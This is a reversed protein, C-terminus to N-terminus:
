EWFLDWKCRGAMVDYFKFTARKRSMVWICLAFFEKICYCGKIEETFEEDNSFDSPENGYVKDQEYGHELVLSISVFASM